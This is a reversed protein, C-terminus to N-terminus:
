SWHPSVYSRSDDISRIVSGDRASLIRPELQGAAEYPDGSRSASVVFRTGDPSWDFEEVNETTKSIRRPEGGARRVVWLMENEWEHDWDIVGGTKWKADKAEKPQPTTALFAISKGDPSWRLKSPELDGTSVTLAEGGDVAIVHLAAKGKVKRVFAI